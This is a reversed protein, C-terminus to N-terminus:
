STIDDVFDKIEDSVAEACDAVPKTVVRTLDTAIKVPAVAIKVLDGLIGFM